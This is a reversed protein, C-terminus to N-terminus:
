NESFNIARLQRLMAPVIMNMLDSIFCIIQNNSISIILSAATVPYRCFYGFTGIIQPFNCFYRDNEGCDAYGDCVLSTDLCRGSIKCKFESPAQCKWKDCAEEDDCNGCDCVGDCWSWRQLCKGDGCRVGNTFNSRPDRRNVFIHCTSGSTHCLMTFNESTKMEIEDEEDPCDIQGNCIKQNLICKNHGPCKIM